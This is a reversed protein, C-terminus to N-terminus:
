RGKPVWLLVALSGGPRVGEHSPSGLEMEYDGHRSGGGHLSSGVTSM